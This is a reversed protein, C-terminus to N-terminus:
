LCIGIIIKVLSTHRLVVRYKVCVSFEKCSVNCLGAMGYIPIRSTGWTDVSTPVVYASPPFSMTMTSTEKRNPM